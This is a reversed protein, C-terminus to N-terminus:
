RMIGDFLDRIELQHKKFAKLIETDFHEKSTRSDGRLIIDMTKEHSFAPKYSRESRLAEYVDVISVIRAEMPIEEKKLGFPYGTGDCKEHHYLAIKRATDFYPDDLLEAGKTTHTKIENWEDDNLRGPKNLTDQSVFIKGIDHLPAYIRIEEVLSPGLGMKEAILASLEGVRFIHMGTLDDHAEAIIALSNAFEMYIKKIDDYEKISRLYVKVLNTFARFIDISKEGFSKDSDADVDIAIDFVNGSDIKLTYIMTEKIKKTAKAFNEFVDPPFVKQNIEVLGNVDYFAIDDTVSMYSKKLPLTKLKEIDHGVATIFKWEDGHAMSISGYDAEDVVKLATQLLQRYFKEPNGVERGFESVLDLLSKLNDYNKRIALGLDKSNKINENLKEEIVTMESKQRGIQLLYKKKKAIYVRLWITLAAIFIAILFSYDIYPKYRIYLNPSWNLFVSGKPLNELPIGFKDAVKTDFAYYGSISQIKPTEGEFFGWLQEASIKGQDYGSTIYGGFIGYNMYFDWLVFVPVNSKEPILKALLDYSYYDGKGDTVYSLLLVATDKELISLYKLLEEMNSNDVIEFEVENYKDEDIIERIKEELIKGVDTKNENLFIIKRTEPIIKLISSVNEEVFFDAVNGCINGMEGLNYNELDNIGCFVMYDYKFISEGYEKMFRLANDDVVIIGDFMMDAYKKSYYDKLIGLFERSPNRKTDMYQIYLSIEKDKFIEDIGASVDDTYKLGRHYSHLILVNKNESFGSNYGLIFFISILMIKLFINKSYIEFLELRM